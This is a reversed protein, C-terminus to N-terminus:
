ANLKTETLGEHKEPGSGIRHLGSTVRSSDVLHVLVTSLLYPGFWMVGKTRKKRVFGGSFVLHRHKAQYTSITSLYLIDGLSLLWTKPQVNWCIFVQKRLSWASKDTSTLLSFCILHGDTPSHIFLAHQVWQLFIFAIWSQAISVPLLTFSDWFYNGVHFFVSLPFCISRSEPCHENM